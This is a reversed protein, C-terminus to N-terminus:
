FKALQAKIALMEASEAPAPNVEPVPTELQQSHPPAKPTSDASSKPAARGPPPPSPSMSKKRPGTKVPSKPEGQLNILKEVGIDVMAIDSDVVSSDVEREARKM